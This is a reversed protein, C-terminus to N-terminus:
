PRAFHYATPRVNASARKDAVATAGASLAQRSKDARGSLGGRRQAQVAGAAATTRAFSLTSVLSGFGM